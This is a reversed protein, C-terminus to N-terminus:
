AVDLKCEAFNLTVTMGGEMLMWERVEIERFGNIFFPDKEAFARAEDATQTNYISLGDGMPAGNAGIFPGSAFLVGKRALETMYVLHDPLLKMMEAPAGKSKLMVLFLKKRLMASTLQQVRDPATM